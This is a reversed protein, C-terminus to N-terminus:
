VDGLTTPGGPSTPQNNRGALMELLLVAGLVILLIPWTQGFGIVSFQQLLLLVGLTILLLPGRLARLYAPSGM